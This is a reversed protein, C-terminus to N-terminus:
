EFATIIAPSLDFGINIVEGPNKGIARMYNPVNSLAQGGAYVILKTDPAKLFAASLTPTLLNPDSASAPPAVIREVVLGAEELAVATGEERIFRGPQGWAGFVIAKDGAQFGFMELARTGLARGQPTLDAGVYGGGFEQRVTPVDVNQYM